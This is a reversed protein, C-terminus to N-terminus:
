LSSYKFVQIISYKQIKIDSRTNKQFKKVMWLKCFCFYGPRLQHSLAGPPAVSFWKSQLTAWPLIPLLQLHPDTLFLNHAYISDSHHWAIQVLRSQDNIDMPLWTTVLVKMLPRLYFLIFWLDLNLPGFLILHVLFFLLLVISCLIIFLFPWVIVGVHTVDSNIAQRTLTLENQIYRFTMHWIKKVSFVFKMINECCTPSLGTSFFHFALLLNCEESPPATCPLPHRGAPSLSSSMVTFWYLSSSWWLYWFIEM